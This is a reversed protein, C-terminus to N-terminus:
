EALANAQKEDAYHEAREANQLCNRRQEATLVMNPGHQAGQPTGRTAGIRDLRSRTISHDSDGATEVKSREESDTGPYRPRWPRVFITRRVDKFPSTLKERM